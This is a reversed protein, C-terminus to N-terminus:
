RDREGMLCRLDATRRPLLRLGALGKFRRGSFGSPGSLAASCRGDEGRQRFEAYRCYLEVIVPSAFLYGNKLYRGFSEAKEPERALRDIRERDAADLQRYILGWLTPMPKTFDLEEEAVVGVGRKEGARRAALAASAYEDRLRGGSQKRYHYGYTGAKYDSAPELLLSFLSEPKRLRLSFNSTDTSRQTGTKKVVFLDAVKSHVNADADAHEEAAADNDELLAADDAEGRAGFHRNFYERSWHSAEWRRLLRGTDDPALAKVIRRGWRGTTPWTLM